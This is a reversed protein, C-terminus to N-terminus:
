AEEIPMPVPRPEALVNRHTGVMTKNFHDNEAAQHALCEPLVAELRAILLRLQRPTVCLRRFLAFPIKHYPRRTGGLDFRATSTKLYPIMEPVHSSPIRLQLEDLRVVRVHRHIWVMGGMDLGVPRHPGLQETRLLDVGRSELNKRVGDLLPWPVIHSDVRKKPAIFGAADSAIKPYNALWYWNM